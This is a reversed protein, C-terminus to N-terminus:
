MSVRAPSFHSLFFIVHRLYPPRRHYPPDMGALTPYQSPRLIKENIGVGVLIVLAIEFVCSEPGFLPPEQWFGGLHAGKIM